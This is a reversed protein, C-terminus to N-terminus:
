ASQGELVKRINTISAKNLYTEKEQPDIANQAFRNLSVTYDEEILTEDFANYSEKGYLMVASNDEFNVSGLLDYEDNVAFDMMIDLSKSKNVDYIYEFVILQSLNLEIPENQTLNFVAHTLVDEKLIGRHKEIEYKERLEQESLRLKEEIEKDKSIDTIYEIYVDQGDWSTIESHTLFTKGAEPVYVEHKHEGQKTQELRCNDCPKDYGFFVEYCPRGRYACPELDILRFGAENSYYMERTHLDVVHVGMSSINTTRNLLDVYNIISDKQKDGTKKGNNTM